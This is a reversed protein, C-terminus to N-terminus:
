AFILARILLRVGSSNGDDDYRLEQNAKLFEKIRPIDLYKRELEYDGITAIEERVKEWEPMIRQVWDAAQKGRIVRNTRGKDSL